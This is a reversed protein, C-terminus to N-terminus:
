EFFAIESSVFSGVSFSYPHLKTKPAFIKKYKKGGLTKEQVDLLPKQSRRNLDAYYIEYQDEPKVSSGIVGIASLKPLHITVKKTGGQLLVELVDHYYRYLERASNLQPIVVKDRSKLEYLFPVVDGTSKNVFMTRIDAIGGKEEKILVFSRDKDVEYEFFEIDEDKELRIRSELNKTSRRNEKFSSSLILRLFGIMLNELMQGKFNRWDVRKQFKLENAFDAVNKAFESIKRLDTPIGNKYLFDLANNNKIFDIVDQETVPANTNFLQMTLEHAYKAYLVMFEESTEEDFFIKKFIFSKKDNGIVDSPSFEKLSFDLQIGMGERLYSFDYRSLLKLSSQLLYTYPIFVEYAGSDELGAELKEQDEKSFLHKVGFVDRVFRRIDDIKPNDSFAGPYLDKLLLLDALEFGLYNSGYKKSSLIVIPAIAKLVSRSDANELLKNLKSLRQRTKEHYGSVKRKTEKDDSDVVFYSVLLNGSSFTYSFPFFELVKEKEDSVSHGDNRIVNLKFRIPVSTQNLNYLRLPMPAFFNKGKYTVLTTQLYIHPRESALETKVIIKTNQRDSFEYIGEKVEQIHVISSPDFEPYIRKIEDGLLTLLEEPKYSFFHKITESQENEALIPVDEVPLNRIAELRQLQTYVLDISITWLMKQELKSEKKYKDLLEKLELLLQLRKIGFSVNKYFRELRSLFYPQRSKRLETKLKIIPSYLQEFTKIHALLNRFDFVGGLNKFVNPSTDLFEKTSRFFELLNESLTAFDQQGQSNFFDVLTKFFEEGSVADEYLDEVFNLYFEEVEEYDRKNFFSLDKVANEIEKLEDTVTVKVQRVKKPLSISPQVGALFRANQQAYFVNYDMLAWDQDLLVGRWGPRTYEMFYYGTPLHVLVQGPPVIKVVQTGDPRVVIFENGSSSRGM